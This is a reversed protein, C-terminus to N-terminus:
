GVVSLKAPDADPPIAVKPVRLDNGFACCPRLRKRIPVEPMEEARLHRQFVGLGPSALLLEVDVAQPRDRSRWRPPDACAACLLLVVGLGFVVCATDPEVQYQGAPNM